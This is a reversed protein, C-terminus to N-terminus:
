KKKYMRAVDLTMDPGSCVQSLRCENSKITSGWQSVLSAAGHGSINDETINDQCQALWDKGIRIIGLAQNPLLM